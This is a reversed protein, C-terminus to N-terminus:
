FPPDSSPEDLLFSRVPKAEETFSQYYRKIDYLYYDDFANVFAYLMQQFSAAQEGTLHPLELTLYIYDM